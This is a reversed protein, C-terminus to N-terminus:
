RAYIAVGRGIMEGLERDEIVDKPSMEIRVVIADQAEDHTTELIEIDVMSSEIVGKLICSLYKADERRGNQGASLVVKRAGEKRTIAIFLNPSPHEVMPTDAGMAASLSSHLGELFPVSNITGGDSEELKINLKLDGKQIAPRTLECARLYGSADKVTFLTGQTVYSLFFPSDFSNQPVSFDRPVGFYYQKKYGGGSESMKEIEVLGKGFTFRLPLGPKMNDYTMHVRGPSATTLEALLGMDEVHFRMFHETNDTKAGIYTIFVAAMVAIVCLQVLVSLVLENSGRRGRFM